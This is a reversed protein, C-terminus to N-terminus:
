KAQSHDLIHKNVRSTEIGFGINETKILAGVRLAEIQGRSYSINGAIYIM